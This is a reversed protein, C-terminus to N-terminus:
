RVRLMMVDTYLIYLIFLGVSVVSCIRFLLKDVLGRSSCLNLSFGKKWPYLLREKKRNLLDIVLHSIFAIGFYPAALPLFIAVCGTLLFLALVSHMFSRHPREKGFDCIILFSAAAAVMRAMSSNRMIRRYLGVHWIYEAAVMAFVVTAAMAIIKDAEKHSDSTGIDIDSIVAGIAAAGTGLILEPINKPQIFLLSAAVGAAMHTKGLM